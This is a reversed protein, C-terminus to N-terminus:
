LKCQNVSHPLPLMVLLGYRGAEARKSGLQWMMFYGLKHLFSTMTLLVRSAWAFALVLQKDDSHCRWPHEAWGFERYFEAVNTVM